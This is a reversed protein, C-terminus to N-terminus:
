WPIFGGFGPYTENFRLYTQLKLRMINYAIEPAQLPNDPSLFQAAKQSGALAHTYLMVQLSEKSAASFPHKETALGTTEDLLSGDYTMGNHSNYSINNQHFKGEYYLFDSIFPMPDKLIDDQNYSLSFRCKPTRSLRRGQSEPLAEALGILPLGLLFLQCLSVMM